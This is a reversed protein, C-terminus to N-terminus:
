AASPESSNQSLWSRLTRARKYANLDDHREIYDLVKLRQATTTPYYDERLFWLCLARYEDALRNVERIVDEERPKDSRM